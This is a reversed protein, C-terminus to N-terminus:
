GFYPCHYGEWEDVLLPLCECAALVADVIVIGGVVAAGCPIPGAQPELQVLFDRIEGMRAAAEEVDDSEVNVTEGDTVLSVYLGDPFVADFRVEGDRGWVVVEAAVEGDPDYALVHASDASEIVEVDAIPPRTVDEPPGTFAIILPVIEPQM